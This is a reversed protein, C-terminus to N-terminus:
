KATQLNCLQRAIPITPFFDYFLDLQIPPLTNRHKYFLILEIVAIICYFLIKAPIHIQVRQIM